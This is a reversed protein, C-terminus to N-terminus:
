FQGLIHHGGEPRTQATHRPWWHWWSLPCFFPIEETVIHSTAKWSGMQQTVSVRSLQCMRARACVCCPPIFRLCPTHCFSAALQLGNTSATFYSYHPSLAPRAGGSSSTLFRCQPTQDASTIVTSKAVKNPKQFGERSNTMWLHKVTSSHPIGKSFKSRHSAKTLLLFWQWREHRSHSNAFAAGGGM